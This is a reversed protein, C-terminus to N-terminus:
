STVQPPLADMADAAQNCATAAARAEAPDEFTLSSLPGLYVTAHPIGNQTRWAHGFRPETFNETASVYSM